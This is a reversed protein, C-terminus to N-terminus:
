NWQARKLSVKIRTPLFCEDLRNQELAWNICCIYVMPISSRSPTTIEDGNSLKDGFRVIVRTRGCIRM